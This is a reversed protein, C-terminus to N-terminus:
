GSGAPKRRRGAPKTDRLVCNVSHKERRGKMWSTNCLQCSYGVANDGSPMGPQTIRWIQTDRLAQLLQQRTAPM